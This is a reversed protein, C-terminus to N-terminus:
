PTFTATASPEIPLGLANGVFYPVAAPAQALMAGAGLGVLLGAGVMRWTM